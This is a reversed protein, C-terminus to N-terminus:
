DPKLELKLIRGDRTVTMTRGGGLKLLRNERDIKQEDIAEIVDGPKVGSRGALSNERVAKVRLKAGEEVTEVGLIQLVGLASVSDDTKLDKNEPIAPQPTLGEPMIQVNSPRVTFDKSSLPEETPSPKPDLRVQKQVPNRRATLDNVTKSKGVPVDPAAPQDVPVATNTTRAVERNSAPPEPEDSPQRNEVSEAVFNDLTTESAPSFLGAQIMIFAAIVLTATLPLAYRLARWGSAKVGGNERVAAIRAKLRFDFDKPAPVKELRGVLDSIRREDLSLIEEKDPNNKLNDTNM